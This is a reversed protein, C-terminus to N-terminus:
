LASNIKEHCSQEKKYIKSGKSIERYNRSLFAAPMVEAKGLVLTGGPKLAYDLKEFIDRQLEKELYIFLNRCFLIDVKSIPPDKVIDLRGFRVMDRIRYKVKFGNGAPIFYREMNEGSANHLLEKRYVANRAIDLAETDIDTAFIKARCIKEPPLSEALIIGLSYAEEGYASGCCWARLGETGSLDSMITEKLLAFVQPERFFESVKITITSLLRKYEAPDSELTKAYDYYCSINHASLRRSIRRKLSAKKYNRFDWGKDRHVKELLYSLAYDRNYSFSYDAATNTLPRVKAM